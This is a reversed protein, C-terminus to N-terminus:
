EERGCACDKQLTKANYLIPAADRQKLLMYAGGATMLGWGFSILTGIIILESLAHESRTHVGDESQTSSFRLISKAAILFGVGAPQGVLVLVYIIFRELQGILSAGNKLGQYQDWNKEDRKGGQSPSDERMQSSSTQLEQFESILPKTFQGIMIDGTRICAVAGGFIIISTIYTQRHEPSFEAWLGNEFPDPSIAVVVLLVVIHVFQDIILNRIESFTSKNLQRDLIRVKILDMFAHTVGIITLMRWDYSLTALASLGVVIATHLLLGSFKAKAQVLWYPQLLFDACIHAVLLAILFDSLFGDGGRQIRITWDWSRFSTYALMDQHVLM